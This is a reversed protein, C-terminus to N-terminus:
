HRLKGCGDLVVGWKGVEGCGCPARELETVQSAGGVIGRGRGGKRVFAPM